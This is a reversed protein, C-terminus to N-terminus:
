PASVVAVVECSDAVLTAWSSEHHRLVVLTAPPFPSATIAEDGSLWAALAHVTPNHGVLAVVDHHAAQEQVVGIYGDVGADYLASEPILTSDPFTLGATQTTRTASSHLVWTPVVGVDTTALHDAMWQGQAQGHDSLPRDFDRGGLIEPIAQAHRM